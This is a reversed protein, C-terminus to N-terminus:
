CRMIHHLRPCIARILLLCMQVELLELFRYTPLNRAHAPMRYQCSDCCSAHVCVIAISSDFETSAAALSNAAVVSLPLTFSKSGLCYEVDSMDLDDVVQVLHWARLEWFESCGDHPVESGEMGPGLGNPQLEANAQGVQCDLHRLPLIHECVDNLRKPCVGCGQGADQVKEANEGFFDRM